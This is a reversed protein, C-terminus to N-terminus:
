YRVRHISQRKVDKRRIDPLTAERASLSKLFSKNKFFTQQTKEGKRLKKFNIRIQTLM